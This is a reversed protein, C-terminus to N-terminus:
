DINTTDALRYLNTETMVADMLEDHAECPMEDALVEEFCFAMKVCDPRLKKIYSDYYGKGHGIRRCERDCSICPLIVLDIEKPDVLPADIGPEPVGYNSMVLKHESGFERAELESERRSGDAFVEVDTCRPLCVRKGHKLMTVLLSVTMVEKGMSAYALITKAEKYEPTLYLKRCIRGSAEVRYGDKLNDLAKRAESRCWRKRDKINQNDIKNECEVM